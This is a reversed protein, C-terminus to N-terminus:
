ASWVSSALADDAVVVAAMVDAIIVVEPAVAFVVFIEVISVCVDAAIHGVVANSCYTCDAVIDDVNGEAAAAVVDVVILQVAYDLQNLTASANSKRHIPAAGRHPYEYEVVVVVGGGVSACSGNAPM